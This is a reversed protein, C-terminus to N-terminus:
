SWDFSSPKAVSLDFSTSAIFAIFSLGVGGFSSFSQWDSECGLETSRHIM